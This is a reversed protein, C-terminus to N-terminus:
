RPLGAAACTQKETEKWTRYNAEDKAQLYAASVFGAQVCIQMKDGQREAIRYQEVADSAVKNEIEQMSTQVQKDMGGGWFYWIGFGLVILTIIASAAGNKKPTNEEM